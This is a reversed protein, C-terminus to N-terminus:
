IKVHDDEFVTRGLSSWVVRVTLTSPRVPTKDLSAELSFERSEGPAIIDELQKSALRIGMGLVIIMPRSAPGIGTNEVVGSLRVRGDEEELGTVKVRLKPEPYIQDYVLIDSVVAIRPYFREGPDLYKLAVPVLSGKYPIRVLIRRFGPGSVEVPESGGAIVRVVSSASPLHLTIIATRRGIWGGLSADIKVQEGPELSVAGTHYSYVYRGDGTFTAILSTDALSIPQYSDYLAVLRHSTKEALRKALLPKVDFVARMYVGRDIEAQFQPKFERTVTAGDITVKWRFPSRGKSARVGLALLASRPESGEPRALFLSVFTRRVSGPSSGLQAGSYESTYSVYGEGQGKALEVIKGDM